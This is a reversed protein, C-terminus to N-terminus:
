MIELRRRVSVEVGFRFELDLIGIRKAPLEAIWRCESAYSKPYNTFPSLFYSTVALL